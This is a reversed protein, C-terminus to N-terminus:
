RVNRYDIGNCGTPWKCEPHGDILDRELAKRAVDDEEFHMHFHTAGKDVVCGEKIAAQYRDTFEGEGIYVAEWYPGLVKAFVYVGVMEGPPGSPDLPM